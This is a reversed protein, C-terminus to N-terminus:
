ERTVLLDVRYDDAPIQESSPPTPRLDVVQIRYGDTTAPGFQPNTHLELRSDVRATTANIVVTADGAWMCATNLPCRSDGSAERFVLTLRDNDVHAKSGPALTFQVGLDATVSKPPPDSQGSGCATSALLLAM